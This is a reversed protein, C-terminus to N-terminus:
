QGAEVEGTTAAPELTEVEATEDAASWWWWIILIVIIVVIIGIWTNRSM